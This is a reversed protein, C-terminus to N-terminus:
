YLPKIIKGYFTRTKLLIEKFYLDSGGLTSDDRAPLAMPEVTRAGQLDIHLGQIGTPPTCNGSVM